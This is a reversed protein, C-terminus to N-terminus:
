CHAGALRMQVIGSCKNRADQSPVGNLFLSLALGVVSHISTAFKPWPFGSKYVKKMSLSMSVLFTIYVALYFVGRWNTTSNEAGTSVFFM